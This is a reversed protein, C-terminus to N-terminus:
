LCLLCFFHIAQKCDGLIFITKHNWCRSFFCMHIHVTGLTRLTIVFKTCHVSSCFLRLICILVVIVHVILIAITATTSRYLWCLLSHCALINAFSVDIVPGSTISTSQNSLSSVCTSS